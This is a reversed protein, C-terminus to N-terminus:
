FASVFSELHFSNLGFWVLDSRVLLCILVFVFGEITVIPRKPREILKNMSLMLANKLTQRSSQMIWGYFRSLKESLLEIGNHQRTFTSIVNQQSSFLKEIIRTQEELTFKELSDEEYCCCGLGFSGFKLDNIVECVACKFSSYGTPFTM